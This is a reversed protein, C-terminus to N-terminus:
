HREMRGVYISRKVFLRLDHKIDEIDAAMKEMKGKLVEIEDRVSLPLADPLIKCMHLEALRVVDGYTIYRAVKGIFKTKLEINSERIWRRATNHTIDLYLAVEQTSCLKDMNTQTANVEGQASMEALAKPP